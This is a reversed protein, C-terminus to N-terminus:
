FPLDDNGDETTVDEEEQNQFSNDEAKDQDFGGADSVFGGEVEDFSVGGTGYQSNKEIIQVGDLYVSM